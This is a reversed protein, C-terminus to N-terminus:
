KSRLVVQPDLLTARRAPIYGAAVSVAVLLLSVGAFVSVDTASVGFLLSSMLRTLLLAGVLGVGIGIGTYTLVQRIILKLVGRRDSGIAMRIGIEHARQLVSYSVVSYIGVVTLLLATRM